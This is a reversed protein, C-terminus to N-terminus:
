TVHEGADGIVWDISDGFQQGPVDVLGAGAGCNSVRGDLLDAPTATRRKGLLGKARVPFCLKARRQHARWHHM